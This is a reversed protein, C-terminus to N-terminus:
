FLILSPQISKEVINPNEYQDEKPDEENDSLIDNIELNVTNEQIM